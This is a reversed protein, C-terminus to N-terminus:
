KLAVKNKAKKVKKNFKVALANYDATLAAVQATLATIQSALDAASISSYAYNVPAPLGDASYDLEADLAVSLAVSSTSAEFVKSTYLKTTASYLPTSTDAGLANVNVVGAGANAINNGFVDTLAYTIKDKSNAESVGSTVSTPFKVTRINYASGATGKVYHVATNGAM